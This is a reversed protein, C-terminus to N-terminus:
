RKRARVDLFLPLRRWRARDAREAISGEDVTPETLAEVVFGSSELARFYAELPWHRSNFTMRLGEREISEHYRHSELYSTDM